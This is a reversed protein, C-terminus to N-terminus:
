SLHYIKDFIKVEKEEIKEVFSFFLKVKWKHCVILYKFGTRYEVNKVKNEDRQSGYRSYSEIEIKWESGFHLNPNDVNM